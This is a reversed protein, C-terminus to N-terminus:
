GLGTVFLRTKTTREGVQLDAEVYATITGKKNKTGDINYTNLPKPLKYLVFDNKKAFEEDIFFDEQEQTL